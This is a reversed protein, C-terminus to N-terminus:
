RAHMDAVERYLDAYQRCMVRATLLQDFRDRAARGMASAMKQDNALTRMAAALAGVDAPPVAIGTVGDKNVYTTGTGIECSILPKGARAAELLVVGFAESRLHSPLVLATCLELLANKNADDIPGALFVNPPRTREVHEALSGSGALVVPVGTQAAAALLFDIGKYYRFQGVFLFFRDGVRRRWEEVLLPDAAPHQEDIGLCIVSTKSRYRQLVDSSEAYGPSTAVIRDARDLFRHMLPRYARLLVKQKVVDSHYTVITPKRVGSTMHLLDGMPWPFHFHVLDAEAALRRYLGWAALSLPTSAIDLHLRASFGHHSGIPIGDVNPSRSLSLVSHDFGLRTTGEAIEYIVREVGAFGDPLYVKFVQLIKM